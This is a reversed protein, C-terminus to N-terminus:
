GLIAEAVAPVDAFDAFLHDPNERALRDAPTLGSAVAVSKVGIARGCAVDHISDGVVVVRKGLFDRGTLARARAIAIAPLEYRDAHDSGFAGFPFYRNFDVPALKARAGREHNGTLLALTVDPRGALAALLEAAGKKAVVADPGIRAELAELYFEIVRSVNAGDCAPDSRAALLERVIQPDTKGSFDYGEFTMDPVGTKEFAERLADRSARGASLLTGDIDFLILSTPPM